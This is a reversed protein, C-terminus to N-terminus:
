KIQFYDVASFCVQLAFLSNRTGHGALRNKDTPWENIDLFSLLMSEVPWSLLPLLAGFPDCSRFISNSLSIQWQRQGFLFAVVDGAVATALGVALAFSPSLFLSLSFSLYSPISRDCRPLIVWTVHVLSVFSSYIKKIRECGTDFRFSISYIELTLRVHGPSGSNEEM